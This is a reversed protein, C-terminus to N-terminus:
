VGPAFSMTAPVTVRVRVPCDADGQTAAFSTITSVM